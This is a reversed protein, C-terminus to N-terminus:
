DNKVGINNIVPIIEDDIITNVKNFVSTTAQKIDTSEFLLKRVFMNFGSEKGGVKVSVFMVAFIMVSVATQIVTKKIFDKSQPKESRKKYKTTNHM